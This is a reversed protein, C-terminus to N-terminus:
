HGGDPLREVIAQASALSPQHSISVHIRCSAGSLGLRSWAAESLRAHPKGRADSLVEIDQFGIEPGIGTGFAKVVAEKAAFRGAVWETRRAERQALAKREGATLIRQLFREGSSGKLLRAVRELELIDHGIGYIM